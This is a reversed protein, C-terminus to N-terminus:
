IGNFPIKYEGSFRLGGYMAVHIDEIQRFEDHYLKQELKNNRFFFLLVMRGYSSLIVTNYWTCVSGTEIISINADSIDMLMPKSLPKNVVQHWAMMM